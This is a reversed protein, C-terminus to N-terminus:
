KDFIADTYTHTHSHKVYKVTKHIIKKGNNENAKENFFFHEFVNIHIHIHIHITFTIMLSLILRCHFLSLLLFFFFGTLSRLICHSFFIYFLIFDSSITVCSSHLHSFLQAFLFFDFKNSAPAYMSVCM